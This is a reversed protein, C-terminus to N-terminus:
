GGVELVLSLDLCLACCDPVGKLISSSNVQSTSLSLFYSNM